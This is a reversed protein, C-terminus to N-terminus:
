FDIGSNVFPEVTEFAERYQGACGCLRGEGRHPRNGAYGQPADPNDEARETGTNEYVSDLGKLTETVENLAEEYEAIRQEYEDAQADFVGAFEQLM